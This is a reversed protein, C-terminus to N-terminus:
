LRSLEPTVMFLRQRANANNSIGIIGSCIKMLKNLPECAHDAGVSVFPIVSKTVSINGARLEEWTQPHNIRLDHMDAIYRPWLRKYKIRDMAFFLKSLAEGAQLHLELDANRTAALFFLITEVRHLYSMMAKFIVHQSKQEEWEQFATIVEATAELLTSNVQKVSEAKIDKGKSCAAKVGETAKLCVYKLQPNDKFFEELAMEYLAVYSYIHAHLARKYHTCKLIQRTTAPGYVDAEIWADDIGSNEMSAGLAAMVVHLEGLRPVVMQKLDPRADPLQVLKDYLAMDFTIVTPHDEGVALKRLHNAQMIVTLLTSWEHAVEPLLPLAGVQTLPLSESLLSNYGAWGPINSSTEGAKKRSLASAVVWGLHALQYSESVGKSIAFQESRKAHQPKPKDCHLIDVHYPTVSLSQADGIILPEAVPEKSPDIKQYVAIITGHDAPGVMIWHIMTYLEAPVDTIDSSVQLVNREKTFTAISEKDGTSSQLNDEHQEEEKEM